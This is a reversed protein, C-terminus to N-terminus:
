DKYPPVLALIAERNTWSTARAAAQERGLWVQATHERPNLTVTQPEDLRLAFVTEHNHTVGPAYREQWPPIIPFRNNIGTAVIEGALGTEERTERIAAQLATEGERLSGTVSQWFGRPEARELMLVRSDSTYVIVLVSEPRKYSTSMAEGTEM